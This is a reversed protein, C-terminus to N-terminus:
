KGKCVGCLSCKSPDAPCPPSIKEELARRYEKLLYSKEVGQDIFDWPFLEKEGRERHVYFSPDMSSEKITRPWNGRNAHAQVLLEGVRRDGRAIVGQLYAWRPVDAHVRVNATKKLGTQVVKIKRKLTKITDMSAWQFPTFPKPVFSSLSVTLSGM